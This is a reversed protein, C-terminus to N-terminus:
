AAKEGYQALTVNVILRTSKGEQNEYEMSEGPSGVRNELNKLGLGTKGAKSKKIVELDFGKGNDAFSLELRGNQERMTLIIENAEAHKIANSIMEQIVRFLALEHEM